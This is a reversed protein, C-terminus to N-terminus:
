APQPHHARAAGCAATAQAAAPSLWYIRQGALSIQTAEAHADLCGVFGPFSALLGDYAVVAAPPAQRLLAFLDDERLLGTLIRRISIEVLAPEAPRGAMLPLAMNDSWITGGPPVREALLRAVRQEQPGPLEARLTNAAASPGALGLALCLLAVAQPAPSGSHLARAADAVLVAAGAALAPLLFIYHHEWAPFTLNLAALVSLLWAGLVVARERREAGAAYDRALAVVFLILLWIHQVLVDRLLTASHSLHLPLSADSTARLHIALQQDIPSGGAGVLAAPLLLVLLLGAAFLSGARAPLALRARWPGSERLRLWILLPLLPALALALAKVQLAAGFLLGAGLSLALARRPRRRELRLLALVAALALALAPLNPRIFTGEYVFLASSLLAAVALPAAGPGALRRTIAGTLLASALASAAGIARGAAIMGVLEGAARTIAIMTPSITLIIMEDLRRGGALLALIGLMVNEDRRLLYTHSLAILVYAFFAAAPVLALVAPLWSRQTRPLTQTRVGPEMHNQM